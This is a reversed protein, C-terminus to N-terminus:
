VNQFNFYFIVLSDLTIVGGPLEYLYSPHNHVIPPQLTASTRPGTRPEGDYTSDRSWIAAVLFLLLLFSYFNRKFYLKWKNDVNGVNKLESFYKAMKAAAKQYEHLEQIGPM